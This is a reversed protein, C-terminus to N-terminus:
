LHLLSTAWTQIEGSEGSESAVTSTEMLPVKEELVERHSWQSTKIRLFDEVDGDHLSSGWSYEM